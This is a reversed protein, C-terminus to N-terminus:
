RKLVTVGGDLKLHLWSNRHVVKIIRRIQIKRIILIKITILHYFM